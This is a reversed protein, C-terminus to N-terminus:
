RWACFASAGASVLHVANVNKMM